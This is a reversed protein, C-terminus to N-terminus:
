KNKLIFRDNFFVNKLDKLINYITLNKNLTFNITDMELINKIHDFTKKNYVNIHELPHACDKRPMYNKNLKKKFGISSPVKHIMIGDKKLFSKLKILIELPNELHELVQNSYICDFKKETNLDVIDINNENLYKVRSKSIESVCIDFKLSKMFISWSGFGCGFELISIKKQSKNFYKILYKAEELYIQFNKINLKKQKELNKDQDILEEYLYNIFDNNPIFLQFICFCEKCHELQYYDNSLFDFNTKYYNELYNKLEPTSYKKKFITKYNKSKCCPCYERKILKM